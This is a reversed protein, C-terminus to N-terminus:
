ARHLSPVDSIGSRRFLPTYSPLAAKRVKEIEYQQKTISKVIEMIREVYTDRKVADKMGDVQAQLQAEM